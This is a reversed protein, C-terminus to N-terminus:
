SHQYPSCSDSAFVYNTGKTSAVMCSSRCSHQSSASQQCHRWSSLCSVPCASWSFHCPSYSKIAASSHSVHQTGNRATRCRIFITHPALHRSDKPLRSSLRTRIAPDYTTGSAQFGKAFSQIIKDTNSFKQVRPSGNIIVVHM